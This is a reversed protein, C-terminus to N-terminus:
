RFQSQLRHLLHFGLLANGAFPSLPDRGPNEADKGRGLGYSTTAWEGVGDMTLIAAEEFPSPYFASAAHSEHHESFLIKGEYGPLERRILERTFLKEKVWIPMAMMFSRLGLPAVGLYNELIREFKLLPKDYFGVYDLQSAAIGAQKLCYEVANSPSIRTTSKGPSDSKRLPRWSRATVCFAPPPTM